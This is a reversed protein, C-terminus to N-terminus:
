LASALKARGRMITPTPGLLEMDDTNKAGENLRNVSVSGEQYKMLETM